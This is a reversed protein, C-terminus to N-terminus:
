QAKANQATNEDASLKELRARRGEGAANLLM